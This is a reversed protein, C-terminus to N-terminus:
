GLKKNLIVGNTTYGLADLAALAAAGEAEADQPQRRTQTAPYAQTREDWDPAAHRPM